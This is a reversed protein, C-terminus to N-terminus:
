LMWLANEFIDLFITKGGNGFIDLFIDRPWWEWVYGPIYRQAVMGLYIWSYIEAGGNGFIDMFIDRRWLEWIYGPIYKQALIGLIDLSWSYLVVTCRQVVMGLCIWSYICIQAEVGLYIWSYVTDRRLWKWIYRPSRYTQEVMGLYIYSHIESGGKGFIYLFIETIEAGKLLLTNSQAVM